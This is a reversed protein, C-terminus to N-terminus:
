RPALGLGALGARNTGLAFDRRLSPEAVLKEDNRRALVENKREQHWVRFTRFTLRIADATRWYINDRLFHNRATLTVRRIWRVMRGPKALAGTDSSDEAAERCSNLTVVAVRSDTMVGRRFVKGSMRVTEQRAVYAVSDVCGTFVLDSIVEDRELDVNDQIRHTFGFPHASFTAGIDRTAASAWIERGNLTEKRKWIRLHDRKAFTNLSKQLRLDPVAGDLLLTRMPADTYAHDEAIARIAKVGAHMSNAM